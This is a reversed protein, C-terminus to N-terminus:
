IASSNSLMNPSRSLDPRYGLLRSTLEVVHRVMKAAAEGWDSQIVKVM